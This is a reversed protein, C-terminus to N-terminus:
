PWRAKLRHWLAPGDRRPRQRNRLLLTPARPSAHPARYHFIEVAHDGQDIVQVEYPLAHAELMSRIFSVNVPNYDVV